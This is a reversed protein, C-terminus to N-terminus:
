GARRINLKNDMKVAHAHYLTEPAIDAGNPWAITPGDVFFKKFYIKSKLPRFIPGTLWPEFDIVKKTGDNFKVEILYAKVYKAKTVSPLMKVGLEVTRNEHVTEKAANAGLEQGTGKQPPTGVEQHSGLRELISREKLCNATSISHQTKDKTNPM